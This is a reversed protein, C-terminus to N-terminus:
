QVTFSKSMWYNCILQGQDKFLIDYNGPPVAPITAMIMNNSWSSVPMEYALSPSFQKILYVKRTGQSGANCCTLAVSSGAPGQSPQVGTTVIGWRIELQNSMRQGNQVLFIPHNGVAIQSVPVSYILIYNYDPDLVVKSIALIQNGIKVSVNPTSPKIGLVRSIGVGVKDCTLPLSVNNEPTASGIRGWVVLPLSAKNNAEDSEKVQAESDVGALLSYNGLDISAPLTIPGHYRVELSAGAALSKVNVKGNAFHWPHTSPDQALLVVEVMFNAAPATGQNRVTINFIGQIDSGPFVPKMSPKAEISVYLDPMGRSAPGKFRSWDASIRLSFSCLGILILMRLGIKM